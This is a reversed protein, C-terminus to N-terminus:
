QPIWDIVKMARGRFISGNMKEKISSIASTSVEVVSTDRMLEIRGIAHKGLGCSTMLRIIHRPTVGQKLGTNLMIFSFGKDATDKQRRASKKPASDHGNAGAGAGTGTGSGAGAHEAGGAYGNAGIAESADHSEQDFSVDEREGRGDQSKGRGGSDRGGRGGRGYADDRGSRGGRGGSDRGGRGYADERSRRGFRDPEPRMDPYVNLDRTQKYYNLFRNFEMSLMRQVIEEKSLHEWKYTVIEMYDNIDEMVPTKDIQDILHILQKECVERGTPVKALAFNKGLVAEIRKIKNQERSNIIALSMGTKDARGTRGSRHTYQEPEDPLNYNIVHTLDNVDIGRAAVDTAVLLSLAKDRFRKMVLDRQTQSLEGHLADANYGNKILADSVQQTEQRTRCFIIAYIDPYYDVIRKLALFRDKAQVIYYYHKVNDTGQNRKGVTVIEPAYMYKKAISEVEIPLTASFLLTRREKPCFSLVADLEDKFGMNLMEDAEDMILRNIHGIQAVGRDLLDVMRGPTAVIVQAGRRLAKIQTEMSSGGYVTAMTFGKIFAAYHTLDESIQRCLERTPCLILAQTHSANVDLTQLLPLGFAATKGTGTQALCVLDTQGNLQKPIITEQVQTPKEFGLQTTAQILQPMLGLELFTISM